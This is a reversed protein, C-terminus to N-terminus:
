TRAVQLRDGRRLRARRRALPVQGPRRCHRGRPLGQDERGARRRHGGRRGRRLGRGNRGGEAQRRRAVRFVGDHGAHRAHRPVGAAARPASRGQHHGQRGLGRLGAGRGLRGRLRRRRLEPQELKVVKGATGARMVEGLAVPPIYSRGENMWGRMAPDLSVYMVRILVQGPGPEPVATSTFEFDSRKVMGVPRAALKFQRNQNTM